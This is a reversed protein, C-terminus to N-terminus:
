RAVPEGGPARLWIEAGFGQGQFPPAGIRARLAYGRHLWDLLERGNDPDAGFPGVGFERHNRHLLLVADPRAAEVDALVAQRGFADLETPLFLTFRSPNKRRLWYNVGAGEPYVLLTADDPLTADLATLADRIVAARVGAARIADAGTGVEIDAAAYQAASLRLCAVLGAAVLAVSVARALRGGDWRRRAQAPLEHVFLAVLLLTAPMALVFGYQEIRAKLLLKALLLLSWVAWVLWAAARRLADPDRRARACALGWGTAAGACVFPLARFVGLWAEPRPVLVLVAFALGALAPAAWAPARRAALHRDALALALALAVLLGLAALARVLNAGPADLGAGSLYFPDRALGTGLHLWNGLVGAAAEAAPMRAALWGFLALPLLATGLGFALARRAGGARSAGLLLAAAAAGAAPVALELKTLLVGGLAVGAGLAARASGREHARLLLWISLLSLLLGHTQHHHYPTAYNYNPIGVYNGFAFAGLLVLVCGTAAFRGAARRLVAHALACIGALIALNSWVLARVSPGFAWFVLANWHHALPGSRHAIDRYLVDGESLRWATYLENGFDIQPDTWRGWSWAALAIGAAAIALWGVAEWRRERDPAGGAESAM